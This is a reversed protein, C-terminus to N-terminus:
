EPQVYDKKGVRYIGYTVDRSYMPQHLANRSSRAIWKGKHFFEVEKGLLEAQMIVLKNREFLAGDPLKSPGGPIMTM